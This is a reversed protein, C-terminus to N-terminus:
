LAMVGLVIAIITGTIWQWNRLYFELIAHAKNSTWYRETYFGVVGPIDYTKVEGDGWLKIKQRSIM